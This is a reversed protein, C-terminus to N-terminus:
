KIPEGIWHGEWGDRIEWSVERWMKIGYDAQASLAGTFYHFSERTWLSIHTPDAIAQWTPRGQEDIVLPLIVELTGDSILVRHCENFVDIREQGSGVHEFVHSARIAYVTDDDAPIGEQIKRKWEDVGHVPDLNEWAGHVDTEVTTGGGIEIRM